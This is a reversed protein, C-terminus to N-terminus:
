SEIHGQGCQEYQARNVGFLQRVMSLIAIISRCPNTTTRLVAQVPHQIPQMRRNQVGGEAWHATLLRWGPRWWTHPRRKCRCAEMSCWQCCSHQSVQVSRATTLQSASTVASLSCRAQAQGCNRGLPRVCGAAARTPSAAGAGAQAERRGGHREDRMLSSGDAAMGYRASRSFHETKHM